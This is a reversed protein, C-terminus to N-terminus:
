WLDKYEPLIQIFGDQKVGWIEFHTDLGMQKAEKLANEYTSALYVPERDADCEWQDGLPDAKVVVFWDYSIVENTKKRKMKNGRKM